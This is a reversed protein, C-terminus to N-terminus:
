KQGWLRQLAAVDYSPIKDRQAVLTNLADFTQQIHHQTGEADISILTQWILSLLTVMSDFSPYGSHTRAPALLNIDAERAPLLTPSNTISITKVERENAASLIYGTEVDTDIGLSLALLLDGKKLDRLLLAAQATDSRVTYVEVGSISLYTSWMSALGFGDNKSAIFVRKADHIQQAVLAIQDADAKLDLVRDSVEDALMAVHGSLGDAEPNGKQYRLALEQNIYHKIERSLERYGSYGLEQSFRVVTAPDVGVRRALETATLFGVDLTNELIFEALTRFRPSLDDYREQIRKRFM